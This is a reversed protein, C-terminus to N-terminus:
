GSAGCIGAVAVEKLAGIHGWKSLELFGLHLNRLILPVRKPAGIILVITNQPRYQQGGM